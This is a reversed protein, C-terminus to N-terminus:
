VGEFRKWLKAAAKRARKYLDDVAAPLQRDRYVFKGNVVGGSIDASSMGFILHGALNEASLPTPAQYDLITLDAKYGPEIRGFRDGFCRGLAENGNQLFRSYDSPWLSGGTDRHKFYAFKIEQLVDSGIGDTGICVTDFDAINSNYGVGNNMNSRCNHALMSGRSKMLNRDSDTLYVGHAFLSERTVLGFGDLRALPETESYRHAYAPDFRDEAIHVHFGRGTKEVLDGLAKLGEDSLTFPAHGGVLAEVLRAEPNSSMEGAVAAAFRRNEEIGAELGEAGNRDTTEYCEVGRLGTEEFARKLVDLSGAIFSPSAHHDIVATCGARIADICCVMGSLYLSEEELARDLRWWLNTLNAVFDTSPKIDAIIGRALGSYFHNHGCVLGPMVIRGKMDILDNASDKESGRGGDEATDDAPEGVPDRATEGVAEGAAGRAWEDARGVKEIRTGRIGIDVGEEYRPPDLEIVTCNKLIM